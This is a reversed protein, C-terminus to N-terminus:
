GRRHPSCLSSAVRARFVVVVSPRGGVLWVVVGVGGGGKAESLPSQGQTPSGPGPEWAPEAGTVNGEVCGGRVVFRVWGLGPVCGLSALPSVGVLGRHVWVGVGGRLGACVVVRRCAFLGGFVGAFVVCVPRLLLGGGVGLVVGGSPSFGVVVCRLWGLVVLYLDWLVQVTQVAHPVNSRAPGPSAPAPPRGLRVTCALRRHQRGHRMHSARFCPAHSVSFPAGLEIPACGEAPTGNVALNM